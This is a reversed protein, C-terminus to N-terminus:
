VYIYWNYKLCDKKTLEYIKDRLIEFAAHNENEVEKKYANNM